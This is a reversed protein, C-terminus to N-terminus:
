CAIEQAQIGSDFSGMVVPQPLSIEKLRIRWMALGSAMVMWFTSILQLDLMGYVDLAMKVELLSGGATQHFSL